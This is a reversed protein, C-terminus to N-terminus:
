NQQNVIMGQDPATEAANGLILGVNGDDAFGAVTGFVDFEGGLKMGSDDDHIAGHGARASQFGRALNECEM